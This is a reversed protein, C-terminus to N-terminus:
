LSLSFVTGCGSSGCGSGGYETTGYLTGKVNRLAAYPGVGDGAAAKFSYLVTETGSTTISFVTGGSHTGGDPTTGNLTGKVHILGSTPAAGDASGIDFRHLVTETGSTTIAFVTGCGLGGCSSGGGNTTTGYLTGKLNVLGGEPKGGDSGGAFSYLVTESGSTTIAFVTGCGFGGECGSGGGGNTTGYLTGKVKILVAGPYSGDAAGGKFSYLVTEKGSPTMKFVTGYGNTGGSVTTGYFTGLVNLLGTPGAGDTPGGGFSYLVTETGSPTITFATGHGYTGGNVTTGYHTGNVNTLDSPTGGDAPAGGFSHLVTETGSRTIAFITGWGSSGGGATSGYFNGQVKVLSTSPFAGDSGGAFRYLVAYM